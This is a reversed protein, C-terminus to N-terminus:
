ALKLISFYAFAISISVKTSWCFRARSGGEDLLYSIYKRGHKSRYIAVAELIYYKNLIKSISWYAHRSENGGGKQKM